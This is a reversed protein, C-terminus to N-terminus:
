SAPEPPATTEPDYYQVIVVLLRWYEEPEGGQNPLEMESADDVVRVLAARLLKGLLGNKWTWGALRPNVDRGAVAKAIDNALKPTKAWCKVHIVGVKANGGGDINEHKRDSIVQYTVRPLVEAQAANIPSISDGVLQRVEAMGRIQNYFAQDLDTQQRELVEEM